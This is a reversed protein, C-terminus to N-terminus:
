GVFQNSLLLLSIISFATRVIAVDTKVPAIVTSEKINEIKNTVLNLVQFNNLILEKTEEETYDKEEVPINISPKTKHIRTYAYIIADLINLVAVMLDNNSNVLEMTRTKIPFTQNIVIELLIRTAFLPAINSGLTYGHEIASRCALVSDEVLYVNNDKEEQTSGGVFITVFSANLQAIRSKIAGRAIKLQPNLEDYESQLKYLYDQFKNINEGITGAGKVFLSGDQRNLKFLGCGGLVNNPKPIYDTSIKSFELPNCNLYVSLDNFRDINEDRALSDSNVLYLKIEPNSMIYSIYKEQVAKDMNDYIVVLSRNANSLNHLLGEIWAYHIDYLEYAMLVVPSELEITNEDVNKFIFPTSAKYKKASYGDKIVEQIGTVNYPSAEVTVSTYANTNNIIRAVESGITKDNNNSLTAINTLVELRKEFSLEELRVALFEEIIFELDEQVAKLLTSFQKPNSDIFSMKKLQHFLANATVISSTSGDGTERVLGQSLRQVLIHVNQAILDDFHIKELISFGDKTFKPVDGRNSMFSHSGFPGYSKSIIETVRNLTDGIRTRLTEGDIVNDTLVIKEDSMILGKSHLFNSSDVM